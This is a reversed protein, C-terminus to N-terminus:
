ETQVCLHPNSVQHLDQAVKKSPLVTVIAKEIINWEVLSAEAMTLHAKKSEEAHQRMINRPRILEAVAPMLAGPENVYPAISLELLM